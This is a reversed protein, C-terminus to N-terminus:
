IESFSMSRGFRLNVSFSISSIKSEGDGKRIVRESLRSNLNKMFLLNEGATPCIPHSNPTAV